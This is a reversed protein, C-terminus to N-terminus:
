NDESSAVTNCKPLQRASDIDTIRGSVPVTVRRTEGDTARLVFVLDGTVDGSNVCQYAMTCRHRDAPVKRDEEVAGEGAASRILVSQPASVQDLVFSRGSQSELLFTEEVVDGISRFGLRWESPHAEIDGVVEGRARLIVAPLRQDSRSLLPELRIPTDFAGLAPTPAPEVQLQLHGSSDRVPLIKSFVLAPDCTLQVSQVDHHLSLSVTRRLSSTGEVIPENFVVM